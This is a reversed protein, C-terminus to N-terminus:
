MIKALALVKSSIKLHADEVVRLNVELHIQNDSWFFSLAGGQQTFDEGESVTLVEQGKLIELVRRMQSKESASVYVIQCDRFYEPRRGRRILIPHGKIAKGLLTEDLIQGFPDDGLIGVTFPGDPEMSHLPWEIFKALNYLFAAKIQYESPENDKALPAGLLCADALCLLAISILQM